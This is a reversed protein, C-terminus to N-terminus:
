ILLSFLSTLETQICYGDLNCRHDYVLVPTMKQTCVVYCLTYRPTPRVLCMRRCTSITQTGSAWSESSTGVGASLVAGLCFSLLTTMARPSPLPQPSAQSLFMLPPPTIPPNDTLASAGMVRSLRACVGEHMPWHSRDRSSPPGVGMLSGYWEYGTCLACEHVHQVCCVAPAPTNWRPWM